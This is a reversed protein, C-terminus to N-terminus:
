IQNKENKEDELDISNVISAFIYDIQMQEDYASNQKVLRKSLYKSTLGVAVFPLILLHM